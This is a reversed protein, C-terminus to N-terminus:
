LGRECGDRFAMWDSKVQASYDLAYKLLSERWDSKTAYAIHEELNAAGERGGGRMHGWAVIKGICSMLDELRSLEGNWQSLRLRDQSPLLERLVYSRQDITVASLFAPSIGHMWKQVDVTRSAESPWHPQPLTLYAQLSSGPQVKLDLLSNGQQGGKGHILIVYREIGLSSIGAVRRAVDLVKFFDPSGQRAAFEAMFLMVKQTDVDSAPLAYKGNTKLIRREGRLKTRSNLYEEPSRQELGMLLHKVMGIATGEEVWQAKGSVLAAIYVDLFIVCLARADAEEVELTEAAVLVSTMFRALEWTSPALVAEDFDNIDFYARRDEGNYTGFNEMHLDGCIWTPPADNLPMSTPWDQYFLHCTGRLFAFADECMAQYKLRLREPERGSNFSQIRQVVDLQGGCRPWPGSCLLDRFIGAPRLM